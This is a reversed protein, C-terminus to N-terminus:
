KWAKRFKDFLKEDTKIYDAYEESLCNQKLRNVNELKDLLLLNELYIVEERTLKITIEEMFWEEETITDTIGNNEDM